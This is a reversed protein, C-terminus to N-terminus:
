KNFPQRPLVMSVIPSRSILCVKLQGLRTGTRDFATEQSVELEVILPRVDVLRSLRQFPPISLGATQNFM